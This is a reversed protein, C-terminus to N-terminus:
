SRVGRRREEGARAGGIGEAMVIRNCRQAAPGAISSGHMTRASGAVTDVTRIREVEERILLDGVGLRAMEQAL